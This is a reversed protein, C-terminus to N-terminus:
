STVKHFGRNKWVYTFLKPITNCKMMMSHAVKTDHKEWSGDQIEISPM